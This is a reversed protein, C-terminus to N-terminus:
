VSTACKGPELLEQVATVKKFASVGSGKVQCMCLGATDELLEDANRLTVQQPM